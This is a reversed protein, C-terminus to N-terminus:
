SQVSSVMRGVNRAAALTPAIISNDYPKAAFAASIFTMAAAGM